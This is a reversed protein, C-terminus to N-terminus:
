ACDFRACKEANAAHAFDFDIHADNRGRIAIEIGDNAISRKAGIQEIADVAELNM